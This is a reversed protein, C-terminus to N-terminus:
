ANDLSNICFSILQTDNVKKYDYNGKDEYCGGLLFAVVGLIYIRNRM